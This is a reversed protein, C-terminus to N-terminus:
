TRRGAKRFKWWALGFGLLGGALGGVIGATFVADKAASIASVKAANIQATAKVLARNTESLALERVKPTIQALVEDAYSV